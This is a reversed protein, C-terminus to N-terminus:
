RLNKHIKRALSLMVKKNSQPLDEFDVKCSQQTDWCHVKSFLEYNYHLWEALERTTMNQIKM